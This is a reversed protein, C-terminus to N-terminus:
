STRGTELPRVLAHSAPTRHHPRPLAKHRTAQPARTRRTATTSVPQAAEAPRARAAGPQAARRPRDRHVPAPGALPAAVAHHDPPAPCPAPPSLIVGDLSAILAAFERGLRRLYLGVLITKPLDLLGRLGRARLSALMMAIISNFAGALHQFRADNM